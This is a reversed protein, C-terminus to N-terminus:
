APQSIHLGPTHSRVATEMVQTLNQMDSALNALVETVIDAPDHLAGPNHWDPCASRMVHEFEPHYAAHVELRMLVRMADAAYAALRLTGLMRHLDNVHTELDIVPHTSLSMIPRLLRKRDLMASAQGRRYQSSRLLWTSLVKARM